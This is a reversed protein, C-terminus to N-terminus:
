SVVTSNRIQRSRPLTVTVGAIYVDANLCVDVVVDGFVHMMPMLSLVAVGGEAGGSCLFILQRHLHPGGVYIDIYEHKHQCVRLKGPM